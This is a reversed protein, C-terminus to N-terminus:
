VAGVYKLTVTVGDDPLANIWPRILASESPPTVTVGFCIPATKIYIKIDNKLRSVLADTQSYIFLYIFLYIFVKILCQPAKLFM